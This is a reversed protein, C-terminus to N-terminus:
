VMESLVFHSEVLFQLPELPHALLGTHSASLTESRFKEHFLSSLSWFQPTQFVGKQYQYQLFNISMANKQAMGNQIEPTPSLSRSINFNLLQPVQM